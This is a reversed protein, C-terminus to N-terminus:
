SVELSALEMERGRRVEGSIHDCTPCVFVYGSAPAFETACSSCYCVVESPEVELTALEARTGASVIEFALALAEPEVGALRGIRLKIRHITTAGERRASDVALAIVAEMLGVEHM